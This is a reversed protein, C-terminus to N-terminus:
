KLECHDEAISLNQIYLKLNCIQQGLIEMNCLYKFIRAIVTGAHKGDDPDGSLTIVYNALFSSECCKNEKISM